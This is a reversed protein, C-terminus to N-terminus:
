AGKVICKYVTFSASLWISDEERSIREPAYLNQLRKYMQKFYSGDNMSSYEKFCKRIERCLYNIMQEKNM